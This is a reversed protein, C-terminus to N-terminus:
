LGYRRPDGFLIFRKVWYYSHALSVPVFSVVVLIALVVSWFVDAAIKKM